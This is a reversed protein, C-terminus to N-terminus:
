FLELQKPGNQFEDFAAVFRARRAERDPAKLWLGYLRIVELSYGLGRLHAKEKAAVRYWRRLSAGSRCGRLRYYANRFGSAEDEFRSLLSLGGRSNLFFWEVLGFWSFRM